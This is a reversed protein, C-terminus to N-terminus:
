QGSSNRNPKLHSLLEFVGGVRRIISDYICFLQENNIAKKKGAKKCAILVVRSTGDFRCLLMHSIEIFNPIQSKTFM